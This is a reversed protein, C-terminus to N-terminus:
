VHVTYLISSTFPQKHVTYLLRSNMYLTCYVARCTCTCTYVAICTCCICHVTFQRYMCMHASRAPESCPLKKGVQRVGTYRQVGYPPHEPAQVVSWLVPAGRGQDRPGAGGTAQRHRLLLHWGINLLYDFCQFTAGHQAQIYM